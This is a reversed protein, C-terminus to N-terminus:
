DVGDVYHLTPVLEDPSRLNVAIPSLWKVRRVQQGDRPGTNFTHWHARRMHPRVTGGDGPGVQNSITRAERLASGVRFGIDWFTIRDASYNRKGSNEHTQLAARRSGLGDPAVDSEDACLYLVLSALRLKFDIIQNVVSVGLETKLEDDLNKASEHTARWAESLPDGVPLNAVLDENALRIERSKRVGSISSASFSGTLLDVHDHVHLFEKRLVFELAQLLPEGRSALTFEALLAPNHSVLISARDPDLGIPDLIMEFQLEPPHDGTPAIHDDIYAFFGHMKIDLYHTMGPTPIYVCWDPLRLFVEEPLGDRVDSNVIEELLTPDFRYVGKTMRWAALAAGLRIDSMLLMEIENISYTEGLVAEIVGGMANVPMYCWPEWTKGIMQEPHKRVM